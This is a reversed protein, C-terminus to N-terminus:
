TRRKTSYHRTLIAEFDDGLRDPGLRRRAFEVGAAGARRRADSDDLFEALRASFQSLDRNDTVWGAGAERVLRATESGPDVSALVPVGRAMYNMLKSPLNFESLDSRQSVIGVEARALESELQAEPVVGLMDVRDTRIEDRVASAAVGDGLIVM